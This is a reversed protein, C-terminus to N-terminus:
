PARSIPRAAITPPEPTEMLVAAIASALLENGQENFHCCDDVYLTERSSAFLMSLDHFTVGQDRLRKGAERLQPYGQIIFRRGPLSLRFALRKEESSLPKSEPVYQNPQLFHYYRIGNARCTRAVLLAGREWNTVLQDLMEKENRFHNAPGRARYPLHDQKRGRLELETRAIDGQMQQDRLKWILNATVSRRLLRSRRFFDAWEARKEILYAIKGVQRRSERDPLRAVRWHWGDPYLHYVNSVGNDQAYWAVENLGDISLIVDFEAGMTLVYNLAMLQQPQKFSGVALNVLEIQKNAYEPSRKLERALADVGKHAFISAVSAGLIGVIVKDPHRKRVPSRRQADTFGWETIPGQQRPQGPFDPTCTFGLYPHIDVQPFQEPTSTPEDGSWMHRRARQAEGYSFRQGQLAWWTLYSCAECAGALGVLIVLRFLWARAV